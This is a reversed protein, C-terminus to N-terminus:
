RALVPARRDIPLPLTSNAAIGAATDKQQIPGIYSWPAVMFKMCTGQNKEKRVKWDWQKMWGKSSEEFSIENGNWFKRIIGLDLMRRQQVNHECINEAFIKKWYLFRAMCARQKNKVLRHMHLNKKIKKQRVSETGTLGQYWQTAHKRKQFRRKQRLLFAPPIQNAFSKKKNCHLFQCLILQRFWGCYGCRSPFRITVAVSAAEVPWPSLWCRYYVCSQYIITVPCCVDFLFISLRCRSRSREQFM